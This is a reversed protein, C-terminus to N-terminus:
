ADSLDYDFINDADDDGGSGGGKTKIRRLCLSGNQRRREAENLFKKVEGQEFVEACVCVCVYICLRPFGNRM